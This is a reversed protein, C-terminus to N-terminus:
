MLRLRVRTTTAATGPPLTVTPRDLTEYGPVDVKIHYEGPPLGDVKIQGDTVPFGGGLDMVTGSVECAVAEPMPDCEILVVIQHEEALRIEVGISDAPIPPTSPSHIYGSAWATLSVPGSGIGMVTFCGDRDCEGSANGGDSVDYAGVRAYGIPNGSHDLVRGSVSNGRELNATIDVQSEPGSISIAKIRKWRFHDHRIHLAYEGPPLGSTTYRGSSDTTGVLSSFAGGNVDSLTLFAGSLPRAGDDLVLVQLTGGKALELSLEETRGPRITARVQAPVLYRADTVSIDYDGILLHPFITFGDPGTSQTPLLGAIWDARVLSGAVGQGKHHVFVRLAGSPHKLAM